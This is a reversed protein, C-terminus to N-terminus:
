ERSMGTAPKAYTVYRWCFTKQLHLVKLISNLFSDFKLLISYVLEDDPVLQPAHFGGSIPITVVDMFYVKEVKFGFRNLIKVYYDSGFSNLEHLRRVARAIKVIFNVSSGFLIIEKKALRKITQMALEFDLHEVVERLIVTDVELKPYLETIDYIDCPLVEINNWKKALTGVEFDPEIATVEFGRDLLRRSLTGYGSGVDLVTKGTIMNIIVNDEKREVHGYFSHLHRYNREHNYTHYIDLERKEQESLNHLNFHM